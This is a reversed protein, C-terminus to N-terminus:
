PFHSVGATDLQSGLADVTEQPVDDIGGAGPTESLQNSQQFKVLAAQTGPGFIGDLGNPDFGLKELATQVGVALNLPVPFNGSRMNTDLKQAPDYALQTFDGSTSAKWGALTFLLGDLVNRPVVGPNDTDTMHSERAMTLWDVPDASAAAEFNPFHFLPGLAWVMSFLGLQGEAPWNDLDSFAARGKVQSEFDALKSTILGDIAADDIRLTTVAEKQPLLAHSTGSSKVTQYEQEIDAHAASAGSNKDVWNLTFADPLLHANSGLNSPDDADLLNGVGTSVLSKIDLYMFHVRGELPETFPIFADQVSQQMM